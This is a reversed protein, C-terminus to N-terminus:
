EAAPVGWDARRKQWERRLMGFHVADLWEGQWQRMERQAGEFVFGLKTAVRIMRPNFSWTDLGIRHVDSNRFLHDVWLQLAETGYEKGLYDDECIAIGAYWVDPERDAYRSVTGLPAGSKAAIVVRGRPWPLEAKALRELFRARTREIEIETRPDSGEWPADLLRWEGTYQWRVYSDVDTPLWDRLIVRRGVVITGRAKTKELGEVNV